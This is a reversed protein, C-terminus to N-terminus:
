TSGALESKAPILSQRGQQQPNIIMLRFCPHRALKIEDTLDNALKNRDIQRDNKGDLLARTLRSFQHVQLSGAGTLDCSALKAARPLSFSTAKKPRRSHAQARGPPTTDTPDTCARSAAFELAVFPTAARAAWKYLRQLSELDARALWIAPRLQLAHKLPWFAQSSPFVAITNTSEQVPCCCCCCCPSSSSSSPSRFSASILYSLTQLLYCKSAGEALKPAQSRGCGLKRACRECIRGNVTIYVEELGVAVM